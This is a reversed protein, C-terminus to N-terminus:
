LLGSCVQYPKVGRERTASKVDGTWSKVTHCIHLTESVLEVDVDLSDQIEDTRIDWNSTREHM